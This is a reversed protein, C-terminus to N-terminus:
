AVRQPILAVEGFPPNFPVARALLWLVPVGPDVGFDSCEGDTLYVVARPQLQEKEVHAFVPAYSTGGHGVPKLPEEEDTLLQPTVKTDCWLLWVDPVTGYTGYLAVLGRVEEVLQDIVRYSYMSGSTDFGICVPGLSPAGLSPMYFGTAVLYRLNPRTWSYDHPSREDLFRALVDQWPVIRRTVRKAWEAVGAAMSGAKTAIRMAQDTLVDVEAEAKGREAESLPAGDEAKMDRVEGIMKPAPEQTQAGQTGGAQQQPQGSGSPQPQSPQQGVGRQQQPAQQTSGGSQQQPQQADPTPSQQGQEQERQRRRATREDCIDEPTRGRIPPVMDTPVKFGADQLLGNVVADCAWNWDNKDRGGRRLHHKGFVHGAEHAFTLVLEDMPTTAVYEPSFGITRGDTWMTEAAPDCELRMRYVPMSFFEHRFLLQVMATQMRKEVRPQVDLPIPHNM